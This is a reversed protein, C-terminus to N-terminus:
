FTLPTELEGRMYKVFRCIKKHYGMYPVTVITALFVVAELLKPRARKSIFIFRTSITHFYHKINENILQPSYRVRFIHEADPNTETGVM